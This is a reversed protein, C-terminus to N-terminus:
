RRDSPLNPREHCDSKLGSTQRDQQPNGDESVPISAQCCHAQGESQRVVAIKSRWRCHSQRLSIGCTCPSYRHAIAEHQGNLTGKESGLVLCALSWAPSRPQAMPPRECSTELATMRAAIDQGSALAKRLNDHPRQGSLSFFELHKTMGPLKLSFSGALEGVSLGPEDILRQQVGRRTSNALARFTRDM